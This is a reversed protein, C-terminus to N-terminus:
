DEEEAPHPLFPLPLRVRCCGHCILESNSVQLRVLLVDESDETGVFYTVEFISLSNILDTSQSIRFDTSQVGSWNKDSNTIVVGEPMDSALLSARIEVSCPTGEAGNFRATM